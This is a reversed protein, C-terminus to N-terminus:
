RSRGTLDGSDTLQLYSVGAHSESVNAVDQGCAIFM